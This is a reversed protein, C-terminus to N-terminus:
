SGHEGRLIGMVVVDVRSGDIHAASRLVGEHRFGVKEYAAIAPANGAFVQLAVRELNLDRFAFALLLRLAEAGLGQGRHEEAIRITLDATRHIPHVHLLQCTGILLNSEARVIGFAVADSRAQLEAFWRQHQAGSVPKYASNHLVQQRDNIWALLAPLDDEGLPRLLIRHSTMM